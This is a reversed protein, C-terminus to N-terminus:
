VPVEGLQVVGRALIGWSGTCWFLKMTICFMNKALINLRCSYPVTRVYLPCSTILPFHTDRIHITKKLILTNLKKREFFFYRM